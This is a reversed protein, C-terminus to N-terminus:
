KGLIMKIMTPSLDSLKIVTVKFGFAAHKKITVEDLFCDRYRLGM